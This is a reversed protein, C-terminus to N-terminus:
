YEWRAKLNVNFDPATQAQATGTLLRRQALGTTVYIFRNIRYELEVDREFLTNTNTTTTTSYPRDLGPLRQSLSWSIQPTVDGGVRLYVSGDGRLLSGQERQVEWQNIADNFVKSLDRSLQASLQRTLYNEAPDTASFNGTAGTFRGLTLEAIIEPQDWGSASTLEIVPQSSRGSIRAYITETTANDTAGTVSATAGRPLNPRLTTEATIALDPDVGKQNDFTLDAQTVKFRNSLFFYTGKVAHMEGYILLSDPTQELDLDADFEIEGDPPRWRLNNSAAMHVKYTWFLPETTAARKEVETQNAFDFEVVGRKLRVDGSVQPLREGNVRPGDAVKFDGDFLMAYLGQQTAAFDRMRLDFLYDKLALGTLRVVGSANVRGTRGQVATLSDLTIRAEDFHMDAYVKDLVEERGAPRLSGDRIHGTGTLQPHRTTGGLTADLDFRGHAAQIQPVLLPLLQLDGKPAQIRGHMPADPVVPTRGLALELPMEGSLTSVVNQMTVRTEPIALVGGRYRAQTEIRQARYDRWSLDDARLTLDLEPEQPRGAITLKGELEGRWGEAQPAMAGFRDIALHHIALDGQWHGADSLWRIVATASLSDPWAHATRDVEGALRATGTDLVYLLDKVDLRAPQGALSIALSDCGHHDWEPRSARGEFMWRPDGARGNVVLRADGTGGLGWELPMGMRGLDLDHGELAVDYFGKPSAWRGRVDLRAQQDHLSVRDFVTGQEDGSIRMPPEATWAFQRSTASATDMEMSWHNGSWDAHGTMVFVTDGAAARLPAFTVRQDGLHLQAQASDLHVGVFSGDHTQARALLDPKPLLQGQIGDLHWRAFHAASWDTRAGDLTGSVLLVGKRDEVRGEGHTLVGTLGSARGDPWEELPFQDLTYPGAWGNAGTLAHLTFTGGRRWGLVSFSDAAQAPFDVRVQASDVNWGTWQSALLHALLFSTAKDKLRTDVAYRFDGNLDGAPWGELRLASWFAPNAHRAKGGIEWGLKSWRLMGDLDGAPSRGSLSDVSLSKGDWGVLGTGKVALSDWTLHADFSGKWRQDGVADVIAAGEGDVDFSGNDFVEALWGWRVRDIEAHVRKLATGKKWSGVARLTVDGTRLDSIRFRVSDADARFEAGLQDLRSHWPGESWKMRRLNVRTEDGTAGDLDLDIDRVEGLPGPASLQAKRLHLAFTLTRAKGGGHKETGHWVPVRWAGKRGRDFHVIPREITVDIPQSDGRLLGIASYQIRMEDAELLTGSDDRYRVRPQLIRFGTFPNGKIDRLQLVVDSRQALTQNLILALENAVLQTRNGLYLVTSVIALVVLGALSLLAVRILKGVTWRVPQPVHEVVEEIEERIAEVVGHHEHGGAGERERAPDPGPPDGPPPGAPPAPPKSPTQSM